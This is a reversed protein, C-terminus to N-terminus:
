LIGTCVLFIFLVIIGMIIAFPILAITMFIKM